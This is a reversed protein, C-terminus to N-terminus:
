WVPGIFDDGAVFTAGGAAEDQMAVNIVSEM